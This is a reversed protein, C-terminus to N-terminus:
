STLAAEVLDCIIHGITIHAEQIRPTDDSPVRLCLEVTEKLKGGGAGTLAVAHVKLSRAMEVAALCNASNGSTSLTILVDGQRMLGQVQRAFVRDFGYDNGIATLISTDTTLALGRFADRERRFRSILEGALHQSDAASGGNGCFAIMGGGRLSAIMMEAVAVIEPVLTEAVLQKIRRSEALQERVLDEM